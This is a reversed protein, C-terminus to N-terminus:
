ANRLPMPVIEPSEIVPIKDASHDEFYLELAEDLNSIAEDRTEGFSSVDVQLCQAVYYSGEKWVISTVQQKAM